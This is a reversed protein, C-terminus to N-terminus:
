VPSVNIALCASAFLAISNNLGMYLGNGIYVGDSTDPNMAEEVRENYLSISSAWHSLSLAYM